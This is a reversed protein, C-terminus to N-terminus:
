PLLFSISQLTLPANELPADETNLCILGKQVSYNIPPQIVGNILLKQYSTNQPAPIGLNSYMKLEDYDSYIKGGNSLANYQELEAHLTNYCATKLFISELVLLTEDLPLDASVLEL